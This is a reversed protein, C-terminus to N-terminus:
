TFYKISKVVACVMQKNTPDPNCILNHSEGKLCDESITVLSGDDARTLAEYTEKEVKEPNTHSIIEVGVPIILFKIEMKASRGIKRVYVKGGKTLKQDFITVGQLLNKVEQAAYCAVVTMQAEGKRRMVANTLGSSPSKMNKQVHREVM